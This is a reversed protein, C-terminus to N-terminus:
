MAKYVTQLISKMGVQKTPDTKSDPPRAILTTPTIPRQFFFRCATNKKKCTQSHRHTQLTTVLEHLEKDEKVDPIKCSIHKDVFDITEDDPNEDLKPADKIHLAIHFYVRGRGQFEKKTDYNLVQGIPHPPGIVVGHFFRQFMNDIHRVATVPNRKLWMSKRDFDMKNVDEKTLSEGYQQAIVQIIETWRFEAVYFTLFFTYPGLQRIKALCDYQMKQWSAPSGRVNRLVRYGDDYSILRNVSDSGLVDKVTARRGDLSVPRKKRLAINISQRIQEAETVFQAYFLYSMNQAFRTDTNLLRCNFYKKRPLKINRSCDYGFQGTPFEKPFSMVESKEDKLLSLPLQDAGPAISYEVAPGDAEQLCTDYQVAQNSKDEEEDSDSSPQSEEEQDAASQQPVTDSVTTSNDSLKEWLESHEENNTSEWNEDVTVRSYNLNNRKLYHLAQLVSAPRITQYNVHGRYQLKRKLKVAIIGTDSIKRPLMECIKSLDTPVKVVAGRIGKQAAKPLNVIKMFPIRKAIVQCELECPDELEEPINDLQLNNTHYQPPM